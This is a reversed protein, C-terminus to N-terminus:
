YKNHQWWKVMESWRGELTRGKSAFDDRIAKPVGRYVKRADYFTGHKFPRAFAKVFRQPINLNMDDQKHDTDIFTLLRERVMFSHASVQVFGPPFVIEDMGPDDDVVLRMRPLMDCVFTLPFPSNSDVSLWSANHPSHM